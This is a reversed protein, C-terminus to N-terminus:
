NYIDHVNQYKSMSIGSDEMQCCGSLESQSLSLTFEPAGTIPLGSALRNCGAPWHVTYNALSKGYNGFTSAPM